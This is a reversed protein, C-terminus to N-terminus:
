NTPGLGCCLFAEKLLSDSFEAVLNFTTRRVLLYLGRAVKTIGASTVDGEVIQKLVVLDLVLRQDNYGNPQSGHPHLM